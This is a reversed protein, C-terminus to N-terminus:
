IQSIEYILEIFDEGLRQASKLRLPTSLKRPFLPAGGGLTTSGMAMAGITNIFNEIYNNGPESFQFLWELTNDNDAIYDDLSSAAFYITKM